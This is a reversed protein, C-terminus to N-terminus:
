PVYLTKMLFDYKSLKYSSFKDMEQWKKYGWFNRDENETPMGLLKWNNCYKGKTECLWM